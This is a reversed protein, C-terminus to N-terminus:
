VQDPKSLWTGLGISPIYTLPPNSSRGQGSLSIQKAGGFQNAYTVTLVIAFSIIPLM